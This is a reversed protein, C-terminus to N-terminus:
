RVRKQKNNFEKCEQEILKQEDEVYLESCHTFCSSENKPNLSVVCKIKVIQCYFYLMVTRLLWEWHLEGRCRLLSNFDFKVSTIKCQTRAKDKDTITYVLDSWSLVPLCLVRLAPTIENTATLTVIATISLLQQLYRSCATCLIFFFVIYFAFM